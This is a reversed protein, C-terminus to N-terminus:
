RNKLRPTSNIPAARAPCDICRIGTKPESSRLTGRLRAMLEVLRNDISHVEDTRGDRMVRAIERSAGPLYKGEAWYVIDLKDGTRLNHFALSRKYPAVPLAIAPM